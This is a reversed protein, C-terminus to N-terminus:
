LHYFAIASVKCQMPTGMDNSDNGMFCTHGLVPYAWVLVPHVQTHTPHGLIYGEM